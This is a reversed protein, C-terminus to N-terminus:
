SKFLSEAADRLGAADVAAGSYAATSAKFYDCFNAREKDSVFDAIPELCDNSRGPKFFQCNRCVHVPKSCSACRAERGLDLEGLGQGCHWCRGVLTDTM